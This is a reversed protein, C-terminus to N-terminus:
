LLRQMTDCVPHLMGFFIRGNVQLHGVKILPWQSDRGIERNRRRFRQTILIYSGQNVAPFNFCLQAGDDNRKLMM